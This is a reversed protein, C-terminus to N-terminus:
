PGLPLGALRRAVMLWARGDGGLGQVRYAAGQVTEVPAM